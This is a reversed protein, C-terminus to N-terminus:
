DEQTPVSRDVTDPGAGLFRLGDPTQEPTASAESRAIVADLRERIALLEAASVAGSEGKAAFFGSLWYAFDRTRM